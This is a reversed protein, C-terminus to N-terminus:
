LAGRARRQLLRDLLVVGVRDQQGQRDHADVVRRCAHQDVEGVDEQGVEGLEAEAAEVALPRGPVLDLGERVVELELDLRGEAAARHAHAGVAVVAYM